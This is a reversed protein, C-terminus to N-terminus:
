TSLRVNQKPVTKHDYVFLVEYTQGQDSTVVFMQQNTTDQFPHLKCWLENEKLTAAALFTAHVEITEVDAAVFHEDEEEESEAAREEETAKPQGLEADIQALEEETLQVKAAEDDPLIYYKLAEEDAHRAHKEQLEAEAAADLVAQMSEANEHVVKIALLDRLRRREFSRQAILERVRLLRAAELKRALVLAIRNARVEERQLRTRVAKAKAALKDAVEKEHAAGAEVSVLRLQDGAHLTAMHTLENYDVLEFSRASFQSLRLALSKPQKTKLADLEVKQAAEQMKQSLVEGLKKADNNHKEEVEKRASVFVHELTTSQNLLALKLAAKHVFWRSGPAYLPTYQRRVEM